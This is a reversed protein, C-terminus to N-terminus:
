HYRIIINADGLKHDGSCAPAHEESAWKLDAGDGEEM